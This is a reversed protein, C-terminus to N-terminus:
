LYVSPFGRNVRRRWLVILTKKSIITEPKYFKCQVACFKDQGRLKAVVDIGFDNAPKNHLRAWDAFMWADDFRDKMIADNKLFVIILRELATGKDRENLALKRYKDLLDGLASM